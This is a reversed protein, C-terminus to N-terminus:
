DRGDDTPGTVGAWTVLVAGAADKASVWVPATVDSPSFAAGAPLIYALGSLSNVADQLKGPDDAIRIRDTATTSICRIHLDQRDANAPLVETPDWTNQLTQYGTLILNTERPRKAPPIRDGPATPQEKVDPGNDVEVLLSDVVLGDDDNDTVNLPNYPPDNPPVPIKGWTDNPLYEMQASETIGYASPTDTM